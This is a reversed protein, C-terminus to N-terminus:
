AGGPRDSPAFDRQGVRRAHDTLAWEVTPYALKGWPISAWPILVSELSESGPAHAPDLLRARYMLHVQGIHVLNYVGLLDGVEVRACAEEMVERAAGERTTEDLEMYGAPVTWFGRRPEIGRRVLLVKDEWTCVAGVVIKPNEYHIFGCSGCVMRERNDGEPVRAEFTSPHSPVPRIEDAM